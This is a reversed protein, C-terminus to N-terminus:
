LVPRIGSRAVRNQLMILRAKAKDEVEPTGLPVNPFNSRGRVGLWMAGRVDRLRVERGPGALISREAGSAREQASLCHTLAMVYWFDADDSKEADEFSKALAAQISSNVNSASTRVCAKTALTELAVWEAVCHPAYQPGDLEKKGLKRAKAQCDKHSETLFIRQAQLDGQRSAKDYYALGTARDSNPHQEFVHFNGMAVQAKVDGADARKKLAALEKQSQQEAVDREAQWQKHCRESGSWAGQDFVGCACGTLGFAAFMLALTTAILPAIKKFKLKELATLALSRLTSQLSDCVKM